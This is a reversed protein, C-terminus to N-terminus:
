CNHHSSGGCHRESVGELEFDFISSNYRLGDVAGIWMSDRGKGIALTYIFPAPPGDNLAAKVQAFTCFTAQNCGTCAGEAGTFYWDGTTTADIYGSWTNTHPSAPPNWGLSTYNDASCIPNTLNADMEFTINPMNRAGGYGINEGTQFVHFGLRNINLFNDGYFDVENGYAVKEQPSGQLTSNDATEIGLSGDGYPPRALPGTAGFSGFPGNRLDGVPSGITNRTINGWHVGQQNHQPASSAITPIFIAILAAAVGAVTISRATKASIRKSM